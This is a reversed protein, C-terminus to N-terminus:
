KLSSLPNISIVSKKNNFLNELGLEGMKIPHLATELKTM